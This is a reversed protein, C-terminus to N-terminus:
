CKEMKLLMQKMDTGGGYQGPNGDAKVVRHCPIIFPLPNYKMASGAARAAGSYGAMSALVGYSVTHGYKVDRYLAKYVTKQFPTGSLEFPFTFDKRQGEFYERLEQEAWALVPHMQYHPDPLHHNKLFEELVDEYSTILVMKGDCALLYHEPITKHLLTKILFCCTEEPM